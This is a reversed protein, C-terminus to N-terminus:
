SEPLNSWDKPAVLSACLRILAEELQVLEARVRSEHPGYQTELEETLRLRAQMRSEYFAGLESLRRDQFANLEDPSLAKKQGEKISNRPMDPEPAVKEQEKANSRTVRGDLRAKEAEKRRPELEDGLEEIDRLDLSKLRLNVDRSSVGEVKRSLNYTVGEPDILLVGRRGKALRFGEEALAAQFAEPSDSAAYLRTVLDSHRAVKKGQDRQANNEVREDCYIKGHEREYTEAWKSLRLKSYSLRNVMGTGPHITNVILHIHPHDTDRHAVMVAEHESLGLADLAGHGAAIMEEREPRQEPHWALSFTLVPKNSRHGTEPNGSERKIEEANIATWAMWKLAKDPARTPVNVTHTFAVRGSTSAGKDHLYYAGAGKFSSGLVSQRPIM